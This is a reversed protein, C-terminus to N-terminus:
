IRSMQQEQRTRSEEQGGNKISLNHENRSNMIDIKLEQKKPNNKVLSATLTVEGAKKGKFNIQFTNNVKNKIVLFQSAQFNEEGILEDEIVDEDYVALRLQDDKSKLIVDISQNWKPNKGADEHTQTKHQTATTLNELVCYPDM